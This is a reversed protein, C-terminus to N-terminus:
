EIIERHWYPHSRMIAPLKNKDWEEPWWIDKATPHVDGVWGNEADDAYANMQTCTFALFKEEFWGKRWEAKHGHITAKYRVLEPRQAYGFHYVPQSMRIYGETGVPANQLRIPMMECRCVWNFSRWLHLFNVRAQNVGLMQMKCIAEDLSAHDWVEDSDVILVIEAGRGFMADVACNRHEGETRWDGHEIRVKGEPDGARWIAEELDEWSDPNALATGRFGHSPLATYFIGIMDVADYISRISHELYDAGYHIAYYAGVVPSM